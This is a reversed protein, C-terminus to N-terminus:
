LGGVLGRVHVIGPGQGLGVVAKDASAVPHGYIGQQLGQRIPRPERVLRKKCSALQEVDQQRHHQEDAQPEEEVPVQGKHGGDLSDQDHGKCHPHELGAKELCLDQEVKYAKAQEQEQVPQQVPGRPLPPHQGAGYGPDRM